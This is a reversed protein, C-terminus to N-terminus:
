RREGLAISFKVWVIEDFGGKEGSTEDGSHTLGGRFAKMNNYYVADMPKGNKDFALAQVDLDIERGAVPTWALGLGFKECDVPFEQDKLISPVDNFNNNNNSM